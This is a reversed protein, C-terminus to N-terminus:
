QKKEEEVVPTEERMKKEARALLEATNKKLAKIGGTRQFAIIAVILAIIALILNIINM